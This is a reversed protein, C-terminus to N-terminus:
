THESKGARGGAKDEVAMRGELNRSANKPRRGLRRLQRSTGRWGAKRGQGIEEEWNGAWEDRGANSNGDADDRGTGDWKAGGWRNSYNTVFSVHLLLSFFFLPSYSSFQLLLHM